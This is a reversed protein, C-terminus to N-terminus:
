LLTNDKGIVKEVEVLLKDAPVNSKVMFGDAKLETARRITVDDKINTLMIVPCHMTEPDKKLRELVDLGNIDPLIIDLIILDPKLEKAKALGDYGNEGYFVEYKQFSFLREYFRRVFPDDEIILLKAM